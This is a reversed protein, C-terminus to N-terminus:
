QAEARQRMETDDIMKHDTRGDAATVDDLIVRRWQTRYEMVDPVTPPRQWVIDFTSPRGPKPLRFSIQAMNGSAFKHVYSHKKETM